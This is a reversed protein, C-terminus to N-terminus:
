NLNTVIVIVLPIFITLQVIFFIGVLRLRKFKKSLGTSLQHVQIRLDKLELEDDENNSQSFFEDEDMKAINGFYLLSEKRKGSFPISAIIITLMITMGLGLLTLLLIHIWLHNGTNKLIIPYATILGAVIFTSIGLFVASKNNVSDYYHDFREICFILREKEM